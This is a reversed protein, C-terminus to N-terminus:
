PLADLKLRKSQSYLQKHHYICCTFFLKLNHIYHQKHHYLPMLNLALNPRYHGLPSSYSYWESKHVQIISEKSAEPFGDLRSSSIKINPARAVRPFKQLTCPFRVAKTHERNYLFRSVKAHSLQAYTFFFVKQTSSQGVISWSKRTWFDLRVCVRNGLCRFTENSSSQPSNLFLSAKLKTYIYFQEQFDLFKHRNSFRSAKVDLISCFEVFKKTNLFQSTKAHKRNRM